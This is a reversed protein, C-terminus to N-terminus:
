YKYKLGVQIGHTMMLDPRQGGGFYFDPQFGLHYQLSYVLERKFLKMSQELGIMFYANWRNLDSLTFKTEQSRVIPKSPDESIGEVKFCTYVPKNMSFGTIVCSQKRFQYIANVGIGASLESGPFTRKTLSPSNTPQAVNFRLYNLAYNYSFKLQNRLSFRRELSAGYSFSTFGLKLKRIPQYATRTYTSQIGFYNSSKSRQSIGQWSYLVLLTFLIAKQM